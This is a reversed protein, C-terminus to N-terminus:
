RNKLAIGWPSGGVPSRSVVKESPIDIVSVDGSSGNASYLTKNDASVAIGWPRAGVDRIMRVKSGEAIGRVAIAKARGLSVFLLTDDPTVALGMPRPPVPNSPDKEFKQTAIVKNTAPDFVVLAGGNETSIFGSAGDRTFAIARPRAPTDLRAVVALKERDIAFVQNEGECAVYVFRQDPRVTVGEPEDGVKVRGVIAGSTLDLATMESTEENSVYLMRGDASIDFAEPDQGSQYKRVLTGSAVDVVGNGDATRDGPPLKSEDVGPGGIPSGSLAVFLKAGDPSLRIGRPRKGVAIRQVVQRTAPDVGVVNGGTEDSVYVRPASPPANGPAQATCAGLLLAAAAIPLRGHRV